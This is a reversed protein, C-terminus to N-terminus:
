KGVEALVDNLEKLANKQMTDSAPGIVPRPKLFGRGNALTAGREFINMLRPLPAVRGKIESARVSVNTQMKRSQRRLFGTRVAFQGSIEQRAKTRGTNLVPRMAKKIKTVAEKGAKAYNLLGKVDLRISINAM